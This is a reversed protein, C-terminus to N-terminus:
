APTTQSPMRLCGTISNRSMPPMSMSSTASLVGVVDAAAVEGVQQGNAVELGLLHMAETPTVPM